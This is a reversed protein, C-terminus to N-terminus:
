GPQVHDAQIDLYGSLVRVLRLEDASATYFIIYNGVAFSRVDKHLEPRLRGAHPNAALMGTLAIIRRIVTDAAVENDSAIFDYIDLLDDRARSSRVVRLTV